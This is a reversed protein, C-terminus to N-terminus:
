WPSLALMALAAAGVMAAELQFQQSLAEPDSGEFSSGLISALKNGLASGLFWIGLVFGVMRAPALKTMTSLGVPSLCLEGITQLLFLGVLWLPSVKGAAALAAAPVM